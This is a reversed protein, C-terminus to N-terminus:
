KLAALQRKTGELIAFVDLWHDALEKDADRLAQQAHSHAVKALADVAAWSGSSMLIDARTVRLAEANEQINKLAM